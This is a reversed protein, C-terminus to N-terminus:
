SKLQINIDCVFKLTGGYAFSSDMPKVLNAYDNHVHIAEGENYYGGKYNLCARIPTHQVYQFTQKDVMQSKVSDFPNTEYVIFPIEFDLRSGDKICDHIIDYGKQRGDIRFLASRTKAHPPLLVYDYEGREYNFLTGMTKSFDESPYEIKNDNVFYSIFIHISSLDLGIWWNSNNAFELILEQNNNTISVDISTSKFISTLSGFTNAVNSIHVNSFQWYDYYGKYNKKNLSLLRIIDSSPEGNAYLEGDKVEIRNIKIAKITSNQASASICFLAFLLAILHKM